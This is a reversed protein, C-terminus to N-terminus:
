LVVISRVLVTQNNRVMQQVQVPTTTSTKVNQLQTDPIMIVHAPITVTITFSQTAAFAPSALTFLSILILTITQKLM